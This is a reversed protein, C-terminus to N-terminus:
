HCSPPIHPLSSLGSTWHLQRLPEPLLFWTLNWPILFINSWDFFLAKKISLFCNTKFATFQKAIKRRETLLTFANFPDISPFQKTTVQVHVTFSLSIGICTSTSQPAVPMANISGIPPKWRQRVWESRFTFLCTSTISQLGMSHPSMVCTPLTAIVIWSWLTYNAINTVFTPCWGM